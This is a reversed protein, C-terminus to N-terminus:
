VSRNAKKAEWAALAASVVYGIALNVGLAIPSIWQFSIPDLDTKPNFHPDFIPGSFAILVATATGCIAGALVGLPRASKVFLAFFFLAFIPTVLLNTTKQTVATINGPVHEMFSSGFVVIAGIGFALAQAMRVHGRETKPQMGFRDCFDTMVVATISNVGSDISSMAAAFMAAVVLGSVGVPLHFSIYRPFLHDAHKAVTLDLPLLEHNQQFYGLLSFGVLYLTIGVITGVVLQILYAHRAARADRTAMFRQVCTQDGGATCISWTMTSIISGAVTVRTKPDFSFIPQVDWNSQWHTPFWGFGGFHWTVMIVVLVAGGLLLSTQLLDTIVVARLGGLSTYIVAVLGTALVITPVTPFTFTRGLITATWNDTAGLMVTMAKAALYVLLSMWVLRLTIFMIGGLLRIGLGLREELLEYASIVRKRMYVPILVFGVFLYVVPLTLLTWIIVPGKGIIEGPISLYSITSLLTAFLSVGILSPNMNGQGIFYEQTTRQRRSFYWGLGITTAAYLIILAWDIWTLGSGLEPPTPSPTADGSSTASLTSVQDSQIDQQGAKLEGAVLLLSFSVVVATGMRFM